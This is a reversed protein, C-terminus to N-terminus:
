LQQVKINHRETEGERPSGLRSESGVKAIGPIFRVASLTVWLCTGRAIIHNLSKSASRGHLLTGVEPISGITHTGCACHVWQSRMGTPTILYHPTSQADLNMDCAADGNYSHDVETMQSSELSKNM